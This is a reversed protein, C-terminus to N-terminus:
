CYIIHLLTQLYKSSVATSQRWARAIDKDVTVGMKNKSIVGQNREDMGHRVWEIFPKGIVTACVNAIWQKPTKPLEIKPHPLYEYVHPYQENLLQKIEKVGLGDYRSFMFTM